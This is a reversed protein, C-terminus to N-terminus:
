LAAAAAPPAILARVDDEWGKVTGRARERQAPTM